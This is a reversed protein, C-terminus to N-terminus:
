MHRGVGWLVLVLTQADQHPEGEQGTHSEAWEHVDDNPDIGANYRRGQHPGTQDENAEGDAGEEAVLPLPEVKPTGEHGSQAPEQHEAKGVNEEAWSEKVLHVHVKTQGDHAAKYKVVSLENHSFAPSSVVVEDPVCHIQENVKDLQETVEHLDKGAFLVLLPILYMSLYM